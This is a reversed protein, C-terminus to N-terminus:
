NVRKGTERDFIWVEDVHPANRWADRMERAGREKMALGLSRHTERADERRRWRIEYRQGKDGIRQASLSM